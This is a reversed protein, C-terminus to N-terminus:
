DHCGATFYKEIIVVLSYLQGNYRAVLKRGLQGPNQIEESMNCYNWKLIYSFAAILPCLVVSAFLSALLLGVIDYHVLIAVSVFVSCTLKSTLWVLLVTTLALKMNQEIIAGDLPVILGNKKHTRMTDGYIHTDFKTCIDWKTKSNYVNM